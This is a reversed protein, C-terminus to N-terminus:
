RGGTAAQAHELQEVRKELILVSRPIAPAHTRELQDVRKELQAIRQQLLEIRLSDDAPMAAGGGALKPPTLLPGEGSPPTLVQPPPVLVQPQAPLSFQPLQSPPPGGQGASLEAPAPRLGLTLEFKQARGNRFVELSVKDGPKYIELLDPLDAMRRIRMGGLSLIADGAQLGAKEGPGGPHVRLVHIGGSPDRNDDATIGLYARPAPSRPRASSPVPQPPQPQPPPAAIAAAHPAEGAAPQNGAPPTVIPGDAQQQRIKAEIQNLESQAAAPAALSAAIAMWSCGALLFTTSTRKM